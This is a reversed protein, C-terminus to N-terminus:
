MLLILYGLKILAAPVVLAAVVWVCVILMVIVGLTYEALGIPKKNKHEM